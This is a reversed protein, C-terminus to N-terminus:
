DVNVVEGMLLAFDNDRRFGDLLFQLDLGM